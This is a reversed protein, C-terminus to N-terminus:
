LRVTKYFKSKIPCHMRLLLGISENDFELDFYTGLELFALVVYDFSAVRELAVGLYRTSGQAVLHVRSKWAFHAVHNV